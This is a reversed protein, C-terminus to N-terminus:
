EIGIHARITMKMGCSQKRVLENLCENVYARSRSPLRHAIEVEPLGRFHSYQLFEDIKTCSLIMLIQQYTEMKYPM